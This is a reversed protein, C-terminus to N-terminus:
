WFLQCNIQYTVVSQNQKIVIMQKWIDCFLNM